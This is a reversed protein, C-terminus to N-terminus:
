GIGSTSENVDTTKVIVPWNVVNSVMLVQCTELRRINEGATIINACNFSRSNKWAAEVVHLIFPQMACSPQLKANFPPPALSMGQIRATPIKYMYQVSARVVYCLNGGSIVM